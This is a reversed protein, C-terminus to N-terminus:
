RDSRRYSQPTDAFLGLLPDIKGLQHLYVQIAEAVVESETKDHDVAAQQLAQYLEDSLEIHLANLIAM